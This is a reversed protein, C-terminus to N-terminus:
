FAPNYILKGSAYHRIGWGYKRNDIWDGEYFTLGGQDYVM